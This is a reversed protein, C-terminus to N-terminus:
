MTIKEEPKARCCTAIARGPSTRGNAAFRLGLWCSAATTFCPLSAHTSAVFSHEIFDDERAHAGSVGKGGRHQTRYTNLLLRKLYGNHSLTVANIEEAILDENSVRGIAGTIQTRREDGFKDRLETLDKRIVELINKESELLTEHTRIQGRLDNYEKVIEDRELAALQGLQMRVVAEAQAETLHYNDHLGLERALAAFHETGLARELVSAAVALNQLREKAEARSPARRCIDIVEDLSSIAILQGELVHARRKAERLLFETRRRIVQVRHRLYEELIQKLNLTRPRGDVLALLIISATKQLPSFQYLQNLVLNPDADRKLDIVLRVPEGGRASSEDRIASIGKIREDKVLDGIAEALRNRTQQFPVETVVIQNRNGEERHRCPAPSIM